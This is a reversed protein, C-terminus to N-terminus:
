HAYANSTVIPMDPQKEENLRKSIVHKILTQSSESVNTMRVSAKFKELGLQKALKGICEDAFSPSIPSEKFDLEISGHKDIDELIQERASAGKHRTTLTDFADPVVISFSTKLNKM